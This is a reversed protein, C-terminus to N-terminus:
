AHRDTQKECCECSTRLRSMIQALHGKRGLFNVRQAELEQLSSIAALAKELENALNGLQSQIDM